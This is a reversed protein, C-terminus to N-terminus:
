FGISKDILNIIPTWYIGLLLAPITFLLISLGIVSDAKVPKPDAPSFLWMAKVIRFYYFLSVVSNLVGVIALWYFKKSAIVVAFLYLKGVFGASPPLGTLSMMLIVMLAGLFPAKRGLGKWDELTHANLQNEAFIVMFFAGMNMFLYMTLYVMVAKIADPSLISLAMLMYGAHAISSFALMRKVNEQQLAILNGFTMTVASLLAILTLWDVGAITTLSNTTFVSYFFRMLIAFGAAKPAVSLFGTIPTPSGEYVDPTWFHFPVMSIKYGFGALVLLIAMYLALPEQVGALGQQIGSLSMSGTLGYLWSFGYVMLGSSFAGFIVYKLSAENSKRDNKLIGALVYSPLSVTEIMGLYVTVLNTASAMLFLGFVVILLLANYEPLDAGRLAHTHRSVLITFFGAILFIWKFFYAFPDSAITGLYLSESVGSDGYLLVGTFVIGALAIIWNFRKLGPILDVVIVALITLVLLLEPLYFAISSFNSV